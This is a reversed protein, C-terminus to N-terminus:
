DLNIPLEASIEELVEPSKPRWYIHGNGRRCDLCIEEDFNACAGCHGCKRIDKRTNKITMKLIQNEFALKRNEEILFQITKDM